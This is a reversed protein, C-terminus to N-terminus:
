TKTAPALTCREGVGLTLTGTQDSHLPDPYTLTASPATSGVAPVQRIELRTLPEVSTGRSCSLKMGLKSDSSGCGSLAFLLVALTM